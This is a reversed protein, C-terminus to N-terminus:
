YKVGFESELVACEHRLHERLKKFDEESPRSVKLEEFRICNLLPSLPKFIFRIVSYLAPSNEKSLGLYKRVFMTMNKRKNSHVVGQRNVKKNHDSFNYENGHYEDPLIVESLPKLQGNIIDEFKYIHVRQRDFHGLLAKVLKGYHFIHMSEDNVAADMFTTNKVYFEDYREVYYSFLASAPERVTVILQHDINALLMSMRHLRVELMEMDPVLTIMEESIILSEGENLRGVLECNVDDIEHGHTVAEYIRLYLHTQSVSDRPQFVGLYSIGKCAFSPFFETQLTTTATKPLGIHVFLKGVM